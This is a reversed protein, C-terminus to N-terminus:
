PARTAAEAIIKKLTLLAKCFFHAIFKPKSVERATSVYDVTKQKYHGGCSTSKWYVKRLIIEEV